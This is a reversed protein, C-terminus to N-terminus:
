SPDYKVFDDVIIDLQNNRLSSGRFRYTIEFKDM